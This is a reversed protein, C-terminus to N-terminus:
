CKEHAKNWHRTRYYLPRELGAREFRRFAFEEVEALVAQEDCGLLERDEVVIQGDIIVTKVDSPASASYVLNNVINNVPRLHAGTLDVLIVDAKKGIELSGIEDAMGLAKAGGITAMELAHYATVVTSDSNSLKQLFAGVRAAEFLDMNDNVAPSDTGLSVPIGAVLMKVIPSIGLALKMHCEPNYSVTTGTEKLIQIDDDTVWILHAGLVDPGLLGLDFLHRVPSKGHRKHVNDWGYKSEAIHMHIGVSNQNALQRVHQLLEPTTSNECAPGYRFTVRKRTSEQCRTRLKEALDYAVDMPLLMGPRQWEDNDTLTLTHIARIGLTEYVNIVELPTAWEMNLICTTGSKLAEICGLRTAHCQLGYEGALYDQVALVIRPASVHDIWDPFPIHDPAGKLFNQLFHHHTNILGPLIAQHCADITKRGVFQEVVDDTPALAVIQGQDIALAGDYLIHDADDMPVIVGGCILIDVTTQHQKSAEM